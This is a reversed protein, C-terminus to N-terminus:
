RKKLSKIKIYYENLKLLSQLDNVACVLIIIEAQQISQTFEPKFYDEPPVQPIENLSHFYTIQHYVQSSYSNMSTDSVETPRIEDLFQHIALRTILCSKGVGDLGIIISNITHSSGSELDPKKCCDWLFSTDSGYSLGKKGPHYRCSIESNMTPDYDSNCHICFRVATQKKELKPLEHQLLAGQSSGQVKGSHEDKKKSRSSLMAEEHQHHQHVPKSPNNNEEPPPSSAKSERQKNKKDISSNVGM